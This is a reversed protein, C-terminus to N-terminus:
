VQTYLVHQPDDDTEDNRRNPGKDESAYGFWTDDSKHQMIDLITKPDIANENDNAITSIHHILQAPSVSVCDRLLHAESGCSRSHMVKGTKTDIPKRNGQRYSQRKFRGSLKPNGYHKDFIIKSPKNRGPPTRVYLEDAFAPTVSTATIVHRESITLSSTTSAYHIRSHADISLNMRKIFETSAEPTDLHITAALSQRNKARLLMDRPFEDSQYRPGCQSQLHMAKNVLLSSTKRDDEKDKKCHRFVITQWEMLSRKPRDGSIFRKRLLDIMVELSRARPRIEKFYYELAVGRLSIYVNELAKQRTLQLTMCNMEYERKQRYLNEEIDGGYKTAPTSYFKM